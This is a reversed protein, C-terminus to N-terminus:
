KSEVVFINKEIMKSIEVFNVSEDYEFYLYDQEFGKLLSTYEKLNDNMDKYDVLFFGKDFCYGKKLIYIIKERQKVSLVTNFLAGLGMIDIKAALGRPINRNLDYNLFFPFIDLYKEKVKYPYSLTIHKVEM